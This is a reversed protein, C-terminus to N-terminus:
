TVSIPEPPLAEETSISTSSYPAFPVNDPFVKLRVTSALFPSVTVIPEEPPPVLALPRTITSASSLTPAVNVNLPVLQTVSFLTTVPAVISEISVLTLPLSKVNCLTAAPALAPMLRWIPSDDVDASVCNALEALAARKQTLYDFTKAELGSGSVVINFGNRSVTWSKGAYSDTITISKYVMGDAAERPEIVEELLFLWVEELKTKMEADVADKSMTIDSITLTLTSKGKNFTPKAGVWAFNNDKLLATIEGARSYATLFREAETIYNEVIAAKDMVLTQMNNTAVIRSSDESRNAVVQYIAIMAILCVAIVLGTVVRSTKRIRPKKEVKTKEGKSM